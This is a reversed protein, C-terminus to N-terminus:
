VSSGKYTEMASAWKENKKTMFRWIVMNIHLLFYKLHFVEYTRPVLLQFWASKGLMISWNYSVVTSNSSNVSTSHSIILGFFPDNWQIILDPTTMLKKKISPNKRMRPLPKKNNETKARRAPMHSFLVLFSDLFRTIAPTGHTGGNFFDNTWFKIPRKWVSKM